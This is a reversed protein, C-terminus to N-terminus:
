VTLIRDAVRRAKLDLRSRFSSSYQVFGQFVWPCCVGIISIVRRDHIGVILLTDGACEELPHSFLHTAAQNM